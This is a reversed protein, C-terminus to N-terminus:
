KENNMDCKGNAMQWQLFQSEGAIVSSFHVMFLPFQPAEKRASM